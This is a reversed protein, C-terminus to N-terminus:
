PWKMDLAYIEQTGIDRTFLLSGDPAVNVQTLSSYPDLVRRLGRITTVPQVKGDAIRIRLAMPEAGGTVCDLYKGDPSIFWNVFNGSALQSWRGTRFDFTLFRSNDRAAAVLTNQDAWFPGIRGRSQPVVSIAGTEVGVVRLEYDAPSEKDACALALSKGDPSWGGTFCDVGAIKWAAGGQGSQVFIGTQTSYAVELGDPSILPSWVLTPPWTLQRSESGDSRSRWLTLDPYSRYTIWRGDRSFTPDTASIGGLFPVFQGIKEDYRILEGRLKSGIALIQKGDRISVAYTYSLPGSTVRAPRPHNRLLGAPERLAWLDATGSRLGVFVLYRGDTTWSGGYAIVDPAPEPLERAAGGAAPVEWLSALPQQCFESFAVRSGDPSARPYYIACPGAAGAEGPVAPKALVRPNTGDKDAM